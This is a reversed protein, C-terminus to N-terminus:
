EEEWKFKLLPCEIEKCRKTRLYGGSDTKLTLVTTDRNGLYCKDGTMLPCLPDCHDEDPLEVTIMIQYKM